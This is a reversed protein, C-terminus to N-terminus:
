KIIKNFAEDDDVGITSLLLDANNFKKHLIKIADVVNDMNLMPEGMSMFM